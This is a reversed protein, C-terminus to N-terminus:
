ADKSFLYKAVLYPMALLQGIGGTIVIRVFWEDKFKLLGLGVGVTMLVEFGFISWMLTKFNKGWDKRMQIVQRMEEAKLQVEVPTTEGTGGPEVLVEGKRLTVSKKLATIISSTKKGVRVAM